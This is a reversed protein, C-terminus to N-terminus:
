KMMKGNDLLEVGLTLMKKHFFSLIIIMLFLNLNTIRKKFIKLIFNKKKLLNKKILHYDFNVIYKIKM